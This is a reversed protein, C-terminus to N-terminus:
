GRRSLSGIKTMDENKSLLQLGGKNYLPVARSAKELIAAKTAASEKHLNAMIGGVRGGDVVTNSLKVDDVKYSPLPARYQKAKTLQDPHVNNRRLWAEHEAKARLQKANLKRKGSGHNNFHPGLLQM